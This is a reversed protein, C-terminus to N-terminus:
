LGAAFLVYGYGIHYEVRLAAIAVELALEQALAAESAAVLEGVHGGLVDEGALDDGLLQEGLLMLFLLHGLLDGDMASDVMLVNDLEVREELVVLVDVDYELQTAAAREHLHVLSAARDALGLRAVEHTLNHEGALVQVVVLDDMAIELEAVQEEVVVHLELDAVEAEGGLHVELALALLGQAARGVIDRGLHEVLLAVRVLHVHPREAAYEVRQQDALRGKLGRTELVGVGLDLLVLVGYRAVLDADLGLIEDVVQELGIRREPWGHGLDELVLEEVATLM